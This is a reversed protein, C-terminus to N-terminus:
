MGIIITLITPEKAIAQAAAQQMRSAPQHTTMLFCGMSKMIIITNTDHANHPKM